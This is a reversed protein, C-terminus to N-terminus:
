PATKAPVAEPKSDAPDPFFKGFEGVMVAWWDIVDALNARTMKGLLSVDITAELDGDKDVAVKMFRKGANWENIRELTDGPNRKFWTYFQLSQCGKVLDCDYFQVTFTWEGRKATFYPKGEDTKKLEVTYGEERMVQAVAEPITSEVLRDQAAAPVAWLLLLAAGWANLIRRGM